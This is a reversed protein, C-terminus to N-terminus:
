ALPRPRSRREPRRESSRQPFPAEVFHADLALKILRSWLSHPVKPMVLEMQQIESAPFNLETQRPLRFAREPDSAQLERDTSWLRPGRNETWRLEFLRAGLPFVYEIRCWRGDLAEAFLSRGGGSFWYSAPKAGDQPIAVIEELPALAPDAISVANHPHVINASADDPATM